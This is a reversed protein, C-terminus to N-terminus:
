YHCTSCDKLWAVEEEINILKPAYDKSSHKDGLQHDYDKYLKDSRIRGTHSMIRKDTESLESMGKHKAEIAKFNADLKEEHCSICWGM